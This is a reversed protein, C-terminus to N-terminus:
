IQTELIQKRSCYRGHLLSLNTDITLVIHLNPFDSWKFHPMYLAHMTHITGDVKTFVHYNWSNVFFSKILKIFTSYRESSPLITPSQLSPEVISVMFSYFLVFTICIKHLYMYLSFFFQLINAVYISKKGFHDILMQHKQESRHLSSARENFYSIIYILFISEWFWQTLFQLGYRYIHIYKHPARVKNSMRAHM